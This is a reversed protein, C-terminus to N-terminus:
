DTPNVDVPHDGRDRPCGGCGEGKGTGNLDIATSVDM